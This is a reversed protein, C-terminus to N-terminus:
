FGREAIFTMMLEEHNGVRIFRRFIRLILCMKHKCAHKNILCSTGMVTRLGIHVLSAQTNTLLFLCWISPENSSLVTTAVRRLLEDTKTDPYILPFLGFARNKQASDM